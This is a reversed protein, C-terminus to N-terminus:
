RQLLPLFVRELEGPLEAPDENPGPETDDGDGIDGLVGSEGIGFGDISEGRMGTAAGEFFPGFGRVLGADGNFPACRWTEAGDGAPRGAALPAMVGGSGIVFADDPLFWLAKLGEGAQDGLHSQAGDLLRTWSGRTTEGIGDGSFLLLDVEQVVFEGRTGPVRATGEVSVVLKGDARIGIADIDEGDTDLGVDSGDFFFEFRGATTAGLRSPIFRVIDSDDVPFPIGPLQIPTDFSFLLTGDPRWEFGDIDTAALGLDSGDILVSWRNNAPDYALVDEDAFGIGDVTGGSSSSVYFVERPTGTTYTVLFIDGVGATPESHIASGIGFNSRRQVIGTIHFRNASDTTVANGSQEGGDDELGAGELFVPKFNSDFAAVFAGINTISARDRQRLERLNAGEGFLASDQFRGTVVITGNSAVAIGRGEDIGAGGASATQLFRGDSGLRTLLIESGTGVLEREGFRAEDTFFGTVYSNGAQDLDIGLGRDSKGGGAATAWRLEGNPGYRAVFLDDLGVSTLQQSVGQVGFMAVASFSGTVYLEGAGDVAVSRAVDSGSGGARQAWVLRGAATYRAVFIDNGGASTLTAGVSSDAQTLTATGSFFGVMVLGSGIPAVAFGADGTVGGIRVAWQIAGDRTYRALFADGQGASNLGVGPGFSANAGFQGTVFLSNEPGLAVSRGIDVLQGGIPQAWALNGTADVKAVFADDAGRSTIRRTGFTATDQFTGTLYRNGATDVVVGNGADNRGGGMLTVLETQHAWASPVMAMITLLILLLM